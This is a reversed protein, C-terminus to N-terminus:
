VYSCVADVSQNVGGNGTVFVLAEKKVADDVPPPAAVCKVLVHVGFPPPELGMVQQHADSSCSPCSTSPSTPGPGAQPATVCYMMKIDRDAAM